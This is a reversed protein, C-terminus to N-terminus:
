APRSAPMGRGAMGVPRQESLPVVLVDSRARALVSQTVSGLLFDALLGSRSKGIVILEARAAQAASHIMRAPAGFVVVPKVDAWASRWPDQAAVLAQIADRARAARKLRYQRLVSPPADLERMLLEGALPLAHLVAVQAGRSLSAGAALLLKGRDQLDSAVLMRQYPSRAAQKVVLVPGRALRILREAQTGMFRERIPNGRLSPVVLLGDRTVGVAGRLTDGEVPELTMTAGLQDAVRAQLDLLSRPPAERGSPPGPHLLRLPISLDRALLAARWAANMAAPSLDCLVAVHALKHLSFPFDSM